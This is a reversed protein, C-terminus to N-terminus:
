AAQLSTANFPGWKLTVQFRRGVANHWYAFIHCSSPETSILLPSLTCIQWCLRKYGIPCTINQRNKDAQEQKRNTFRRLRESRKKFHLYVFLACTTLKRAPWNRTYRNKLCVPSEGSRNYKNIEIRWVLLYETMNQSIRYTSLERVLRQQNKKKTFNFGM